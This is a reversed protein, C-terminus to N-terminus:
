RKANRGEEPDSSMRKAFHTDVFAEVASHFRASRHALCYQTVWDRLQEVSVGARVSYTDSVWQDFASLYGYTWSLYERDLHPDVAQADSGHNLPDAYMQEYPNPDRQILYESCTSNGVGLVEYHGAVDEAQAQTAILIFLLALATRPM